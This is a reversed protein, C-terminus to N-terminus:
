TAADDSSTAADNCTAVCTCAGDVAHRAPVCIWPPMGLGNRALECTGILEDIRNGFTADVGGVSKAWDGRVEAERRLVHYAAGLVVLTLASRQASTKEGGGRARSRQFPSSTKSLRNDRM